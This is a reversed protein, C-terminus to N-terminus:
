EAGKKEFGTPTRNLVKSGRARREHMAEAEGAEEGSLSPNSDVKSVRKIPSVTGPQKLASRRPGPTTPGPTAPAELNSTTVPSNQNQHQPQNNSFVVDQETDRSTSRQVQMKSSDPPNLSSFEPSPDGKASSKSFCGGM